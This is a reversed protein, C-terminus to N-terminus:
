GEPLDAVEEGQVFRVVELLGGRKSAGFTVLRDVDCTRLEAALHESGEALQQGDVLDRVERPPVLVVVM